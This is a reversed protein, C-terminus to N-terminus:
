MIAPWLDGEAHTVTKSGSPWRFFDIPNDAFVRRQWSDPLRTAAEGPDDADINPYCSAYLLMREIGAVGRLAKALLEPRPTEIEYTGLRIHDICYESPLKTLWQAERRANKKYWYDLRWMHGPLWTAGGGILLVRLDPFRNFVGGIVLSSTHAMHSHWSFSRYEAYTTPYGGIVPSNMGDGTADAWAELVIPLGM